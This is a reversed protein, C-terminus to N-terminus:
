EFPDSCRKCIFDKESAALGTGRKILDIYKPSSFLFEVSHNDISQGLATERNFDMCCLAPEGTYLFYVFRDFWRCYFNKLNGRYIECFFRGQHRLQRMGAMNHYEFYSIEPKIRFTSLKEDWFKSYTKSDFWTEIDSTNKRAHSTGHIMIKLPVEQSLEVLS